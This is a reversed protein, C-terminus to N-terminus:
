EVVPWINCHSGPGKKLVVSVMASLVAILNKLLESYKITVGTASVYLVCVFVDYNSNFFLLIESCKRLSILYVNIWHQFTFHSTESRLSRTNGAVKKERTPVDQEPLIRSLKFGAYHLSLSSYRCLTLENSNIKTVKTM